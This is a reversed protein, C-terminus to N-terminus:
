EKYFFLPISLHDPISGFIKMLSYRMKVVRGGRKKDKM